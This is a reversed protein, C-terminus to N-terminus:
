RAVGVGQRGDKRHNGPRQARRPQREVIAALHHGNRPARHVRPVAPGVLEQAVAGAELVQEDTPRLTVVGEASVEPVEPTRGTVGPVNASSTLANSVSRPPHLSESKSAMTYRMAISHTAPASSAGEEARPAVWADASRETRAVGGRSPRYTASTPHIPPRRASSSRPRGPFEVTTGSRESFVTARSPAPAGPANERLARASASARYARSIARVPSAGPAGAGERAVTKGAYRRGEDVVGGGEDVVGEGDDVVGGGDGVVGKDDDVVGEGDDVVGEGEDAVGEGEDVASRGDDAVGEGEGVVSRGDDVATWRQVAGSLAQAM